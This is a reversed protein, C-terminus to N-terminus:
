TRKVINPYYTYGIFAGAGLVFAVGFVLFWNFGKPSSKTPVHTNKPTPAKTAVGKIEPIKYDIESTSEEEEFDFSESNDDSFYFTVSPSAAKTPTPSPTSNSTTTTTSTAVEDIIIDLDNSWTPGSGSSNYRGVKFLYNGSGSFGSDDSDPMFEITQNLSGSSDSTFEFQSSYTSSNKIWDSGVKTKGFYNSSGSKYFAGKLYYKTNPTLNTIQLGASFSQNSNIRSVIPAIQFITPAATASPTPTPTPASAVPTPTPSPTALSYTFNWTSSWDSWIGSQDKAKVHWYWTGEALVPTYFTNSINTDKEPSSIDSNNDVQVRYPNSPYLTYSPTQWDLKTSSTTSGNAPSTLTPAEAAFVSGVILNSFLTLVIIRVSLTNFM